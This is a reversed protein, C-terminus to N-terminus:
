CSFFFLAGATWTLGPIANIRAVEKERDQDHATAEPASFATSLALNAVLLFTKM